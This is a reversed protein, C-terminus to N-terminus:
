SVISMFISPAMSHSIKRPAKESQGIASEGGLVFVPPPQTRCYSILKQHLLGVSEEEPGEEVSEAWRWFVKSGEEGMWRKMEMTGKEGKRVDVLKGTEVTLQIGKYGTVIWQVLKWATYGKRDEEESRVTMMLAGAWLNLTASM